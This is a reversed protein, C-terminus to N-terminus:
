EAGSAGSNPEGNAGAGTQQAGSESAGSAGSAGNAEPENSPNNEEGNNNREEILLDETVIKGDICEIAVPEGTLTCNAVVDYDSGKIFINIPHNDSRRKQIRLGNAGVIEAIIGKKNKPNIIFRKM